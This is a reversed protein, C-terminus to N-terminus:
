QGGRVLRVSYNNYKNGRYSVGYGFHVGWAYSGNDAVPSSSLFGNSSSNPFIVLNIAPQYCQEELISGLENKNPVRWDTYSAFGGNTNFTQAQKLANQWTYYADSGTCGNTNSDWMQGESCMKWMLGTKNDTVTGNHHDTFQSTPTTAPIGVCTQASSTLPVLTLLSTLVVAPIFKPM